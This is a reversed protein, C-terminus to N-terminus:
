YAFENKNREEWIIKTAFGLSNDTFKIEKCQVKYLTTNKFLLAIPHRSTYKKYYNDFENEDVEFCEGNIQASKSSLLRKKSENICCSVFKNQSCEVAHQTTKKSMFLLVNEDEIFCYFLTATHPKNNVCTGLVMLKNRSIFQVIREDM